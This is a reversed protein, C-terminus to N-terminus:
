IAYYFSYFVHHGASLFIAAWEIGHQAQSYVLWVDGATLQLQQGATCTKMAATKKVNQPKHFEKNMLLQDKARLGSTTLQSEM